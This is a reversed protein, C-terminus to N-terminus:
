CVTYKLNLMKAKLGLDQNEFYFTLFLYGLSHTDSATLKTTIAEVTIKQLFICYCFYLCHKDARVSDLFLLIYAKCCNTNFQLVQRHKWFRGHFMVVTLTFSDYLM